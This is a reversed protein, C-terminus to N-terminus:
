GASGIGSSPATNIEKEPIKTLTDSTSRIEVANKQMASGKGTMAIPGHIDSRRRGVVPQRADAPAAPGADMDRGEKGGEVEAGPVPRELWVM